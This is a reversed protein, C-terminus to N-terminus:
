NVGLHKKVAEALKTVAEEHNHRGDVWQHSMLRFPIADEENGRALIPFIRKHIAEAMALERGVWISEEADPTMIAVVCGANRIAQGVAREWTMTGLELYDEDVWVKLGAARLDECLRQMIAVDKRSYSIFVHYDPNAKTASALIAARAQAIEVRFMLDDLEFPKTVYEDAGLELGQRIDARADKSSVIVTAIHSTKVNNRLERLVDYGNMDPLMIDLLILEPVIHTAKEMADAGRPAVEAVYGHAEFYMKLMNSIDFDDEVILVCPLVNM